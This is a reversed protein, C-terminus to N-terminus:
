SSIGEYFSWRYDFNAQSKLGDPILKFLRKKGLGVNGEYPLQCDCRLNKLMTMTVVIHYNRPSNNQAYFVINGNSDTKTTVKLPRAQAFVSTSLIFSLFLLLYKGHITM